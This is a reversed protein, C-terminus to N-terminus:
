PLVKPLIPLSNYFHCMLDLPKPSQVSSWVSYISHNHNEPFWIAILCINTQTELVLHQERIRYRTNIYAIQLENSNLSPCVALILYKLLGLFSCKNMQLKSQNESNVHSNKSRGIEHKVFENCTNKLIGFIRKFNNHWIISFFTFCLEM